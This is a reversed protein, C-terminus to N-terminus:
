PLLSYAAGCDRGARVLAARRDEQAGDSLARRAMEADRQLARECGEVLSNHQNVVVISVLIVAVLALTVAIASLWSFFRRKRRASELYTLLMAPDSPYREKSMGSM